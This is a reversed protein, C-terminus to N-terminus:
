SKGQRIGPGALILPSKMSHDYLNQKGLLGHSGMAIGQDASFVILTNELQGNAKLQDIIRGLHFDLGLQTAYYEHWQKKMVDVPRPHPALMEDRVKLEGNDFPHEPLFNAPLQIKSTDIQDLYKKDAVRPDHPNGFALYMFFPRTKDRSNLFAIAEDAIEKGPEGSKREIDDNKLYKNHDFRAQILPATNGRKGHHYTEYGEAKMSLPFNPGDGPSIMGKARNGDKFDKWRFYANGSLMMNRSPTCVAGSNGGMCYANTFVMGRAVLADLNPTKAARDGLAAITDARMDDAFLFLVNPRTEAAGAQNLFVVFALALVTQILTRLMAM